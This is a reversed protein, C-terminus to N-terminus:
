LSAPDIPNDALVVAMEWPKKECKFHKAAILQAGLSSEAEVELKKQRYFIIYKM